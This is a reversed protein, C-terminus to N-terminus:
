HHLVLRPPCLQKKSDKATESSEEADVPGSNMATRPSMAKAYIPKQHDISEESSSQKEPFWMAEEKVQKAKGEDDSPGDDSPGEEATKKISSLFFIHNFSM